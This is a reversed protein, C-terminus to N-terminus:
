QSIYLNFFNSIYIYVSLTAPSADEYKLAELFAPVGQADMFFLRGGRYSTVLPDGWESVDAPDTGLADTVDNEKGHHWSQM